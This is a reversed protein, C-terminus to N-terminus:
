YRDSQISLINSHLKEYWFTFHCKNNNQNAFGIIFNLIWPTCIWRNHYHSFHNSSRISQSFSFCFSFFIFIISQSHNWEGSFSKKKPNRKIERNIWVRVWHQSNNKMFKSKHNQTPFTTFFFYFEIHVNNTVPSAYTHRRHAQTNLSPFRFVCHVFPPFLFFLRVIYWSLICVMFYAM